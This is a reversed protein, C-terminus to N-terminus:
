SNYVKDRLSHIDGSASLREHLYFNRMYINQSVLYSLGYTQQEFSGKEVIKIQIYDLVYHTKPLFIHLFIIELFARHKAKFFNIMVIHDLIGEEAGRFLRLDESKFESTQLNLDKREDLSNFVKNQFEANISDVITQPIM